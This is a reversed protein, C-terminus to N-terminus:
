DALYGPIYLSGDADQQWIDMNRWHDITDDFTRRSIGVFDIFRQIFPESVPESDHKRVLQKAEERSLRGARIDECAHDTARGYGFKLFKMYHHLRTIEEDIGVYTRYSGEFPRDLQRFGYRTAIQLHKESDWQFFYSTFVARTPSHVIEDPYDYPKLLEMPISYRDSLVSADVGGMAAYSQFWDRSIGMASALGDNGGYEFASNEGMLVLPVQFRLATHLPFAHLLPHCLLEPTGFDEFGLRIV